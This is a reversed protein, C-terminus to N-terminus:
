KIIIKPMGKIIGDTVLCSNIDCDDSWENIENGKNLLACLHSCEYYEFIGIFYLEEETEKYLVAFDEVNKKRTDIIFDKM